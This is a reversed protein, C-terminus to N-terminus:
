RSSPSDSIPTVETIEIAQRLKYYSRLLGHCVTTPHAHKKAWMKALYTVNPKLAHAFDCAWGVIVRM